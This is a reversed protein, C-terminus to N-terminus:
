TVELCVLRICPSPVCAKEWGVEGAGEQGLAGWFGLIASPMTTSDDVYTM